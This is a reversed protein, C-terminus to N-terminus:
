PVKTWLSTSGVEVWTTSDIAVLTISGKPVSTLVTPQTYSESVLEISDGSQCDVQCLDPDSAPAQITFWLGSAAAPLVVNYTVSSRVLAGSQSATLTLHTSGNHSIVQRRFGATGDVTLNGEVTTQSGGLTANGAVDLTGTSSLGAVDLNGGIVVDDAFSASGDVDLTGPIWVENSSNGLAVQYYDSTETGYGIAIGGGFDDKAGAGIAISSAYAIAGSGLAVGWEYAHSDAGVSVADSYGAESDKGLAVGRSASVSGTGIAIGDDGEGALAGRGIAVVGSGYATADKGISVTEDYETYANRGIVVSAAGPGEYSLLQTQTGWLWGNAGGPFTCGAVAAGSATDDFARLYNGDFSCERLLKLATGSAQVANSGHGGTAKFSSGQVLLGGAGLSVAYQFPATSAHLFTSDHVELAQGTTSVDSDVVVGSGRLRSKEVVLGAAGDNDIAAGANSHIDCDSVVLSRAGFSEDWNAIKLAPEGTATSRLTLADIVASSSSTDASDITLPIGTGTTPAVIVSGPVAGVISVNARDLVVNEDYVGPSVLIVVPAAVPDALSDVAGQITNYHVGAQAAAANLSVRIIRSDPQAHLAPAAALSALVLVHSLTRHRRM